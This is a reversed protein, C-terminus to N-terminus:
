ASLPEIRIAGSTTQRGARAVLTVCAVVFLLAAAVEWGPAAGPTIPFAFLAIPLLWLPHLRPLYLAVVVLLLAFYHLWVIPSLLLAMGLSFTLAARENGARGAILVAAACAVAALVCLAEGFAWSGGLKAAAAPITYGESAEIGSLVRLVHPYTTLGAFGIAAWPVVIFAVTSAAAVAAARPRRAALLWLLLPFLFLKMAIVLGVAAGAILASRRYRWAIAVGLTLMTSVAGLHITYLVPAWLLACGYCRWDRVGLVKLAALASALCVASAAIEAGLPRLLALPAFLYAVVPPYVFATGNHLTRSTTEGYPSMGHLVAKAAPLLAERFDYAVIGAHLESFLLEILCAAPLLGFAAIPGVRRLAGAYGSM